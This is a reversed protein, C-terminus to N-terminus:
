SFVEKNTLTNKTLGTKLAEEVITKIDLVDIVSDNTIITGLRNLAPNARKPNIKAKVIDLIREVILGLSKGERTHVVV